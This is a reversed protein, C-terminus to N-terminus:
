ANYVPPPLTLGILVLPYHGNNLARFLHIFKSAKELRSPLYEPLVSHVKFPMRDM